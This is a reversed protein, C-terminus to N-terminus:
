AKDIKIFDLIHRLYQIADNVHILEGNFVNGNDLRIKIEIRVLPHVTRKYEGLGQLKLESLYAFAKSSEEFVSETGLIPLIKISFIQPPRKM